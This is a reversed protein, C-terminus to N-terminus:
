RHKHLSITFLGLGGLLLNGMSFVATITLNLPFDALRSKFYASLLAWNNFTLQPNRFSANIFIVYAAVAQLIVLMLSLWTPIALARGKIQRHWRALVTIVLIMVALLLAHELVTLPMIPFWYRLGICVGSFLLMSFLIRHLMPNYTAMSQLSSPEVARTGPDQHFALRGDVGAMDKDELPQMAQPTLPGQVKVVEDRIRNMVKQAKPVRKLAPLKQVQVATQLRVECSPGLALNSILLLMFLVAFIIGPSSSFVDSFLALGSLVLAISWILNWLHHTSKHRLVVAQIDKFYFRKYQERMFGSEVHLLHDPGQWLSDTFFLTFFKKSLKRYQRKKAAM